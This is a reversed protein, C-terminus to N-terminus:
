QCDAGQITSLYSVLASGEGVPVYESVTQERYQLCIALLHLEKEQLYIACYESVSQERYQLCIALL